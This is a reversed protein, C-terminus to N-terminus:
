CRPCRHRRLHVAVDAGVPIIDEIHIQAADGIANLGDIRAHHPLAKAMDHVGRRHRAEHASGTLAAVGRRLVADDAERFAKRM